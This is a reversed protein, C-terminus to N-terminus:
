NIGLVESMGALPGRGRMMLFHGVIERGVAIIVIVM